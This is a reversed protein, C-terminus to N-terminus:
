EDCSKCPIIKGGGMRWCEDYVSCYCIEIVIQHKPLADNLLKMSVTDTVEILTVTEGPSLVKRHINSYGNLLNRNGTLLFAISDVSQKSDGYRINDVVYHADKVIAPGAGKNTVNIFFGNTGTLYGTELYPWSSARMQKSMLNAQYIYVFMTCVGIIVALIAIVFDPRLSKLKNFM